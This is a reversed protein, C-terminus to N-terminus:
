IDVLLVERLFSSSSQDGIHNPSPGLCLAGIGVLWLAKSRANRGCNEALEDWRRSILAAVGAFARARSLAANEPRVESKAVSSM